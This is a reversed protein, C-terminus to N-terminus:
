TKKGDNEESKELYTKLIIDQLINYDFNDMIDVPKKWCKEILNAHSENRAILELDNHQYLGQLYEYTYNNFIWDLDWVYFFKKTPCPFNILYQASELSTAIVPADFSWAEKDQLSCFRNVDISKAYEKYFLYPSFRYNADVIENLQKTIYFCKQSM